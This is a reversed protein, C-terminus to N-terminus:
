KIIEQSAKVGEIVQLHRGWQPESPLIKEYLIDARAMLKGLLYINQRLKAEINAEGSIEPKEYTIGHEKEYELVRNLVPLLHVTFLDESTGGAKKNLDKDQQAQMVIGQLKEYNSNPVRLVLEDLKAALEQVAPPLKSVEGEGESM